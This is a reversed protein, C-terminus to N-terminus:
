SHGWCHLPHDRLSTHHYGCTLIGPAGPKPLLGQFDELVYPAPYDGKPIDFNGGSLVESHPDNDATVTSLPAIGELTQVMTCFEEKQAGGDGSGHSRDPPLAGGHGYPGVVM